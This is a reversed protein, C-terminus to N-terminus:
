LNIWEGFEGNVWIKNFKYKMLYSLWVQDFTCFETHIKAWNNIADIMTAFVVEQKEVLTMKEMVDVYKEVDRAIIDQMQKQNPIWWIKECQGLSPEPVGMCRYYIEDFPLAYYADEANKWGYKEEDENKLRQLDEAKGCMEIFRMDPKKTFIM